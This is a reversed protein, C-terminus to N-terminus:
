ELFLKDEKTKVSIVIVPVLASVMIPVISHANALRLCVISDDPLLNAIVVAVNAFKSEPWSLEKVLSPASPPITHRFPSCILAVKVSTVIVEPNAPEPIINDKYCPLRFPASGSQETVAVLVVREPM